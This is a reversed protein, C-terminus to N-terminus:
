GRILQIVYLAKDFVWIGASIVLMIIIVQMPPVLWPITNVLAQMTWVIAEVEDHIGFPLETVPPFFAVWFTLFVGITLFSGLM